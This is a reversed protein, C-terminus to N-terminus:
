AHTGIFNKNQAIWLWGRDLCWWVRLSISCEMCGVAPSIAATLSQVSATYSSPSSHRCPDVLLSALVGAITLCFAQDFRCAVAWLRCRCRDLALRSISCRGKYPSHSSHSISWVDMTPPFGHYRYDSTRTHHTTTRNRSPFLQVCRRSRQRPCVPLELSRFSKRCALLAGEGFEKRSLGSGTRSPEGQSTSADSSPRMANLQPHTTYPENRRRCMQVVM